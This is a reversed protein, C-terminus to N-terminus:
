APEKSLLSSQLGDGCLSLRRPRLCRGSHASPALCKYTATGLRALHSPSQGLGIPAGDSSTHSNAGVGVYRTRITYSDHSWPALSHLEGTAQLNCGNGADERGDLLVDPWHSRWPLWWCAPWGAPIHGEPHLLPVPMGARQLLHTSSYTHECVVKGHNSPPWQFSPEIFRGARPIPVCTTAKADPSQSLM